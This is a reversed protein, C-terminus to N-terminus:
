SVGGALGGFVSQSHRGHGFTIVIHADQIGIDLAPEPETGGTDSIVAALDKRRPPAAPSRRAKDGKFRYSRIGTGKATLVAASPIVM